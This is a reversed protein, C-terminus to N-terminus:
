RGVALRDALWLPLGNERIRKAAAEVDYPVRCYTIEKTGTDFTAFSAAPDGDRPQGVSGLIALWHRGELLQVAVGSTPVFSTMKATSSMSYLAPRHIHGSFTAHATTALMSRRADSNSQVYRWRAPHSAESHVYLRDDEQLTLPLEALFRRQTVSLRGRTWEIAAQAEANMSEMEVGFANDHNGRVAVAGGEVLGMVTEVTWEPDAGYGVCDGLFIMREAGRARAQDLCARFAQRNAHIDAFLALLVIEEAGVRADPTAGPNVPILCCPPPPACDRQLRPITYRKRPAELGRLLL